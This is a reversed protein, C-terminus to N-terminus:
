LTYCEPRKINLYSNFNQQYLSLNKMRYFIVYLNVNKIKEFM